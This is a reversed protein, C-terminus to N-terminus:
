WGRRTTKKPAPDWASPAAPGPRNCPAVDLGIRHAESQVWERQGFTLANWRPFERQMKEFATRTRGDLQTPRALVAALLDKDSKPQTM